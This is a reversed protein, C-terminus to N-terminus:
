HTQYVLCLHVLSVPFPMKKIQTRRGFCKNNENTEPSIKGQGGTLQLMISFSMKSKAQLYVELGSGTPEAFQHRLDGKKSYLINRSARVQLAKAPDQTVTRYYKDSFTDTIQTDPPAQLDSVAKVDTTHRM